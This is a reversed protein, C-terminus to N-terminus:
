KPGTYTYNNNLRAVLYGEDDIFYRVKRTEFRYQQYKDNSDNLDGVNDVNNIGGSSSINNKPRGPPLSEVYDDLSYFSNKIPSNFVQINTNSSADELTYVLMGDATKSLAHFDFVSSSSGGGGTGILNSLNIAM